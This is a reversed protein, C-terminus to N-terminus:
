KGTERRASTADSAIGVAGCTAPDLAFTEVIIGALAPDIDRQELIQRVLGHLFRCVFGRKFVAKGPHPRRKAVIDTVIEDFTKTAQGALRRGHGLLFRLFESFEFCIPLADHLSLTHGYTYIEATATDKFFVCM